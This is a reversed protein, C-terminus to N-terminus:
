CDAYFKVGVVEPSRTLVKGCGCCSELRIMMSQSSLHFSPHCHSSREKKRVNKGRHRSFYVISSSLMRVVTKGLVLSLKVSGVSTRDRGVM